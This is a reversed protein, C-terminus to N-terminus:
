AAASGVEVADEDGEAPRAARKPAADAMIAAVCAQMKRVSVANGIQRIQETKTGAFEYARDKANFGM